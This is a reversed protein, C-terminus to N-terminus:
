GVELHLEGGPHGVEWRGHPIWRNLSLSQGSQLGEHVRQRIHLGRADRQQHEPGEAALRVVPHSVPHPVRLVPLPGPAPSPPPYSSANLPSCPTLSWQLWLTSPGSGGAPPPPVPQGQNWSDLERGAAAGPVSGPCESRPPPGASSCLPTGGAGSGSRM